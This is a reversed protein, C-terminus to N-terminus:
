VLLTPGLRIHSTDKQSSLPVFPWNLVGVPQLPLLAPWCRSEPIGPCGSLLKLCVTRPEKNHRGVFLYMTNPQIEEPEVTGLFHCVPLLEGSGADSGQDLRGWRCGQRCMLPMGHM